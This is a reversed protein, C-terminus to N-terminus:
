SENHDHSYGVVRLTEEPIRSIIEKEDGTLESPELHTGAATEADASRDGWVNVKHEFVELDVADVGIFRSILESMDRRSEILEEFKVPLVYELDSVGVLQKIAGEWDSCLQQIDDIDEVFDRTKQSRAIDYIDRYLVIHRSSPLCSRLSEIVLPDFKPTKCGWRDFGYEAATEHYATAIEYFSKLVAPRYRDPDAIANPAWVSYDGSALEETTTQVEDETKESFLLQKPTHEVFYDNEGLILVERSSTILRQLLGTGCRATLAWVFVQSQRQLMDANPHLM